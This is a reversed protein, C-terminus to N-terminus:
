PTQNKKNVRRKVKHTRQEPQSDVSNTELQTIQKEKGKQKKSSKLGSLEEAIQPKQKNDKAIGEKVEWKATLEYERIQEAILKLKEGAQLKQLHMNILEEERTAIKIIPMQLNDIHLTDAISQMRHKKGMISELPVELWFENAEEAKKL